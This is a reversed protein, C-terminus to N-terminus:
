PHTGCSFMGMRYTVSDLCPEVCETKEYIYSYMNEYPIANGIKEHPYM